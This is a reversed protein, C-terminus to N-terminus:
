PPGFRTVRKTWSPLSGGAEILGRKIRPWDRKLWAAILADDRERAQRVPRQPTWGHARLVRGMSRSHYRVGCVREAVLALRPLTWRETPFGAALAGRGVVAALRRWQVASLRSPRGHRPRRRLGARGDQALAEAWRSVSARSVGLHHAIAAQTYRGTRLLAAARM